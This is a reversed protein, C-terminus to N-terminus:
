SFTIWGRDHAEELFALVDSALDAGDYDAALSALLAEIRVPKACRVLVDAATESLEVMGEPYLLVYGAQAPEFQVRHGSALTVSAVGTIM